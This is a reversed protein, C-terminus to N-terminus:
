RGGLYRKFAPDVAAQAAAYQHAVHELWSRYHDDLDIIRTTGSGRGTQHRAYVMQHRKIVM